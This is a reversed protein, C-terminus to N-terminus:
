QNEGVSRVQGSSAAAVRRSTYLVAGDAGLEQRHADRIPDPLMTRDVGDTSSSRGLRSLLAPREITRIQSRVQLDGTRIPGPASLLVPM